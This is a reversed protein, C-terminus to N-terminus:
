NLIELWLENDVQIFTGNIEMDRGVRDWDVYMMLHSDMDTGSENYYEYAIDSMDKEHWVRCEDDLIRFAEEFDDTNGNNVIAVACEIQEDDYSLLLEAIENLKAISSYEEIKFPAEYDHIAWEEYLYGGEEEVGHKYTGDDLYQGVGITVYIDEIDHPLTFWSGVLEGENYKGLNAVYIKIESM